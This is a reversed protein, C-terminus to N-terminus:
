QMMTAISNEIKYSYKLWQTGGNAFCFGIKLQYATDYNFRFDPRAMSVFFHRKDKMYGIWSSADYDKNDGYGDLFCDNYFVIDSVMGQTTKYSGRIIISDGRQGCEIYDVMVEGPLREEAPSPIAFSGASNLITCDAKCLYTRELPVEDKPGMITYGYKQNAPRNGWNHPLGLAHGLEHYISAQIIQPRSVYKKKDAATTVPMYPYDSVFANNGRASFPSRPTNFDNICTFVLRPGEFNGSTNHSIWNEIERLITGTGNKIYHDLNYKGHVATVLVSKNNRDYKVRMRKSFGWYSMWYDFYRKAEQTVSDIRKPYDLDAKQDAPIFYFVAVEGAKHGSRASKDEHSSSGCGVPLTSLLLLQILTGAFTMMLKARYIM